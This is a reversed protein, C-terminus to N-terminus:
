GKKLEEIEWQAIAIMTKADCIQGSAVASTAEELTLELLELFEDDDRPLPNDVKRLGKARYLYLWENCFGPSGAFKTMYTIEQCQYMTEEELERKATELPEVEGPEIKGAPIEILSQELAKRYQKVLVIRNAETIALIGVAGQHYVLERKSTEQNPLLVDDVVVTIVQGEYITERHLTKEEFPDKM